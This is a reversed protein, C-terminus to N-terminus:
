DLECSVHRERITEVENGAVIAFRRFTLMLIDCNGALVSHAITRGRDLSMLYDQILSPNINSRTLQVYRKRPMISGKNRLFEDRFLLLLSNKTSLSKELGAASRVFLGFTADRSEWRDNERERQHCKLRSCEKQHCQNTESQRM